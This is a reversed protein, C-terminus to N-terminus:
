NPVTAMMESQTPSRYGLTSHLRKRNYLEYPPGRGAAYRESAAFREKAIAVRSTRMRAEGM